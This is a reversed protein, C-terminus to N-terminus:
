SGMMGVMKPPTRYSKSVMLGEDSSVIVFSMPNGEPPSVIIKQGPDLSGIEQSDGGGFNVQVGTLGLAGTNQVTVRGTVFLNQEDLLADVYLDHDQTAIAVDAMNLVIVGSVAAIAAGALVLLYTYAAVGKPPAACMLSKSIRPPRARRLARAAWARAQDKGYVSKHDCVRTLVIRHHDREIRYIMRDSQGIEYAFARTSKKYRGMVAPDDSEAPDKM